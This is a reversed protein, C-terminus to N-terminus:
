YIRCTFGPYVSKCNRCVNPDVREQPCDRTRHGEEGCNFCKVKVHEIERKDEKCFKAVHGLETSHTLM